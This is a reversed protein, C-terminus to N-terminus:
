SIHRTRQYAAELGQEISEGLSSSEMSELGAATTGAYDIMKLVHEAPTAESESMVVGSALFLQRVARDATRSDIGHKVAYEIMCKAYFAVFGPVPGTIATFRGIHEEDHVEDTLGCAKFLRRTCERDKVTLEASAFWPSYALGIDAAPNSMARVIRRAHTQQRIQNVSVGAMVSIVLRDQASLTLASFLQPPVSIIVIQCADVLEQNCTTFRVGTAQGFASHNGSRNSIWLQEPAVHRTRLLARAISGGLQGTGGIIGISHATTM